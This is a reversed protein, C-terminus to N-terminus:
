TEESTAVQCAALVIDNVETMYEDASIEGNGELKALELAATYCAAVGILRTEVVIIDLVAYVFRTPM